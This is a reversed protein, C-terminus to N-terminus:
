HKKLIQCKITNKCIYLSRLSFIEYVHCFNPKFAIKPSTVFIGPCRIGAWICVVRTVVTNPVVAGETEPLLILLVSKGKQIERKVGADKVEPM